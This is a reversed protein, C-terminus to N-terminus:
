QIESDTSYTFKFTYQSYEEKRSLLIGDREITIKRMAYATSGDSLTRVVRKYHVPSNFFEEFYCVMDDSERYRSSQLTLSPSSKNVINSRGGIPSIASDTRSAPDNRTEITAANIATEKEIIQDFQLTAFCGLEDIFYVEDSFCINTIQKTITESYVATETTGNWYVIQVTYRLCDGIYPKIAPNATGIPIQYVGETISGTDVNLVQTLGDYYFTYKIRFRSTPLAIQAWEFSNETLQTKWHPKSCLWKVPSSDTYPDLKLENTPQFVANMVSVGTSVDSESYTSFGSVTEIVGAKLKIVKQYSPLAVAVSSLLSPLATKLFLYAVEKADVYSIGNTSGQVEVLSAFTPVNYVMNDVIFQYWLRANKPVGAAGNTHTETCGSAFMDFTFDTLTKYETDTVTVVEDVTSINFTAFQYMKMLATSLSYAVDGGSAGVVAITQGAIKLNGTFATCTIEFTAHVAASTMYDTVQIKYTLDDSKPLVGTPYSEFTLTM